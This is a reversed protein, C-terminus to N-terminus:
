PDKQETTSCYGQISNYDRHSLTFLMPLRRAKLEAVIHDVPRCPSAPQRELQGLASVCNHVIGGTKRLPSTGSQCAGPVSQRRALLSGSLQSEFPPLKGLVYVISKQLRRCVLFCEIGEPLTQLSYGIM